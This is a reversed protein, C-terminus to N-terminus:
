SIEQFRAEWINAQHILLKSPLELGCATHDSEMAIDMANILSQFLNM